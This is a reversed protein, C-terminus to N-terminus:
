KCALLIAGYTPLISSRLALVLKRKSMSYIYLIVSFNIILPLFSVDVFSYFSKKECRM